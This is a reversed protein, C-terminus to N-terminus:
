TILAAPVSRRYGGVAVLCGLEVLDGDRCGRHSKEDLQQPRHLPKSGHIPPKDRSIPPVVPAPLGGVAPLPSSDPQRLSGTSYFGLM